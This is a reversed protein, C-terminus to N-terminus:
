WETHKKEKSHKQTCKWAQAALMESFPTPSVPIFQDKRLRVVDGVHVDRWRAARFSLSVAALFFSTRKLNCIKFYFSEMVEFFAWDSNEFVFGTLFSTLYLCVNAEATHEVASRKDVQCTIPQSSLTLTTCLGM